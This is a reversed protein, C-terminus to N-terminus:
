HNLMLCLWWPQFHIIHDDITRVISGDNKPPNDTPVVVLKDDSKSMNQKDTNNQPLLNLRKFISNIHACVTANIYQKINAEM